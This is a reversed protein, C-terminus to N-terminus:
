NFKWFSVLTSKEGQRVHAGLQKAQNFKLERYAKKSTLNCPISTSWPKCWPVAGKKLQEILNATIIEPVTPM